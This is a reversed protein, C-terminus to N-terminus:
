NINIKVLENNSGLRIKPGWCSIGSSVYLVSEMKKFYGYLERFKLKVIFNFPFIQGKHTHGSLMLDSMLHVEKWLSPKHSLILNFRHKKYNEKM